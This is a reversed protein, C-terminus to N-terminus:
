TRPPRLTLFVIIGAALLAGRGMSAILSLTDGSVAIVVVGRQAAFGLASALTGISVIFASLPMILWSAGRREKGQRLALFERVLVLAWIVASASGTLLAIIPLRPDFDIM